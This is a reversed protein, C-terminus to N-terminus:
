KNLGEGWSFYERAIDRAFTSHAEPLVHGCATMNDFKGVNFWREDIRDFELLEYWLMRLWQNNSEKVISKYRSFLYTTNLFIPDTGIRRKVYNKIQLCEKLYNILLEEDSLTVWSTEFLKKYHDDYNKHYFAPIVSKVWNQTDNIRDIASKNYYSLRDTNTLGIFVYNPLDARSQILNLDAITRTAIGTICSGGVAGNIVTSGILEGLITSWVYKRNNKRCMEWMSINNDIISHRKDTWIRDLPQDTTHHGPYIDPFTEFDGLGDGNTFSDGNVYIKINLNM